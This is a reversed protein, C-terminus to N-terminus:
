SAIVTRAIDQTKFLIPKRWVNYNIALPFVTFIRGARQKAALDLASAENATSAQERHLIDQQKFTSSSNGILDGVVM